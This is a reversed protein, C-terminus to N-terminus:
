VGDEPDDDDWDPDPHDPLDEEDPAYGFLEIELREWSWGPHDAWARLREAVYGQRDGDAAAVRAINQTSLRAWEIADTPTAYRMWVRKGDGLPLIARPHFLVGQRRPRPNRRRIFTRVISEALKDTTVQRIPPPLDDKTLRARVEDILDKNEFRGTSPDTVADAAEEVLEYLRADATSM